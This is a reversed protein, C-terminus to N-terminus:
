IVWPTFSLNKTVSAITAVDKSMGLAVCEQATLELIEMEADDLVPSITTILKCAIEKARDESMIRTHFNHAAIM